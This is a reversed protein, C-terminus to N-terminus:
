RVQGAEILSFHDSCLDLLIDICIGFLAPGKIYM